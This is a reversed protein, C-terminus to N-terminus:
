EAKPEETKESTETTEPAAETTEEKVEETATEPAVEEAVTEEAPAETDEAEEVPAATEETVEEAPAEGAEEVSTEPAVDEDDAEVVAKEEAKAAKKAPKDEVKAAPKDGKPKWFAIVIIAILCLIAVGLFIVSLTNNKFFDRIATNETPRVIMESRVNIITSEKQVLDTSNAGMAKCVVKFQGKALPTFSVSSGSSYKKLSKEDYEAVAKKIEASTAGEAKSNSAVVWNDSNLPAYMIVCEAKNANEITFSLSSYAMGVKGTRVSIKETITVNQGPNYDFTFVPIQLDKLVENGDTDKEVSYFGAPKDSPSFEKWESKKEMNIEKYAKNDLPDYAKVSFFVYFAYTGRESLTVKLSSSTKKGSTSYSSSWGSVPNKVYIKATVQSIPYNKVGSLLDWIEVPLVLKKDDNVEAASIAAAVSNLVATDLNYAPTGDAKSDVSVKVTKEEEEGSKNTVKLKVTYEPNEGVYNFVITSGDKLVDKDNEKATTGYWYDVVKETDREPDVGNVAVTGDKKAVSVVASAGEYLETLDYKLAAVVTREADPTTGDAKAGIFSFTTLALCVSLLLAFIGSFKKNKMTFEGMYHFEPSGNKAKAKRRSREGRM